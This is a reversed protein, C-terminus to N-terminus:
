RDRDERLMEVSDPTGPSLPYRTRRIEALMARVKEGEEESRVAKELLNLAEAAPSERRQRALSEIRRYLEEPVNDLHLEPM